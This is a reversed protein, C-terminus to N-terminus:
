QNTKERNRSVVKKCSKLRIKINAPGCTKPDSSQLTTWQHIEGKITNDWHEGEGLDLSRCQNNINLNSDCANESRSHSTHIMAPDGSNFPQNLQIALLGELLECIGQVSQRLSSRRLVACGDGM